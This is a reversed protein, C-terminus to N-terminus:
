EKAKLPPELTEGKARRTQLIRRFIERIAPDEPQLEHMYGLAEYARDWDEQKECLLALALWNNYSHPALECAREFAKRSEALNELLYLLMGRRYPIQPDATLLTEDRALNEVEEERLRRIEAPDGKTAELLEALQDRPGTLYPELRIATRISEQAQSESKLAHSLMALNIHSAARDLIAEQGAKFEAIAQDLLERYRSDVLQSAASVLRRAAASRVLRVPDDLKSAVELVFTTLSTESLARVAASRVLPSKDDLMERCLTDAEPSAYRALLEVASARVIDPRTEEGLLKRIQDLGEPRGLQAALLTPGFHPDDPRKDGYWQRIAQAAWANTEEPRTHCQTCANPSGLSDSLDPRPVRLSHDHRADIGMYVTTPMHCTVCQTAPGETHHHHNPGDYKGPQHCQACLRNGEYKLKLSHPNHCDICRIGKTFMKSQQYSGYVYVEDRIQGDPYYLGQELMNPHYLDLFKEGAHQDPYLSSRRSHCPACTELQAQATAGKLIPLGYGHRRDWFLSHSQALEVHLSGPGHCTECSVDIESFTTHYTNSALDFNKQVNSSHCEACMTNWNQAIGTWHLPDGPLIREDLVDPPTVMFWEHKHVDWSVSLVQVRGDPFEIMYQQLPDIGFTYKIEYDHLKGDPGETNVMFKEGQRFFRTTVGQWTFTTDNFDGLIAEESALEM